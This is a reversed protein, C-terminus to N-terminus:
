EFGRLGLKRHLSHRPAPPQAARGRKQGTTQEVIAALAHRLLSSASLREVNASPGVNSKVFPRTAFMARMAENNLQFHICHERVEELWREHSTV